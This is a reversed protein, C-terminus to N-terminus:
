KRTRRLFSLKKVFPLVVQREGYAALATLDLFNSTAMLLQEWYDFAIFIKKGPRRTSQNEKKIPISSSSQNTSNHWSLARDYHLIKENDTISTGRLYFACIVLTAGRLMFILKLLSKNPPLWSLSTKTRTGQLPTPHKMKEVSPKQTPAHTRSSIRWYRRVFHCFSFM